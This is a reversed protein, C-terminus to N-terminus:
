NRRLESKAVDSFIRADLLDNRFYEFLAGHVQNGGSKLVMSVV